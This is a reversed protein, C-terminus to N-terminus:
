SKLLISAYKFLASTTSARPAEPLQCLQLMTTLLSKMASKMVEYWLPVNQRTKTRNLKTQHNETDEILPKKSFHKEEM